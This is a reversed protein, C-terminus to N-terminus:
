LKLGAAVRKGMQADAKTLNQVMRRQIAKNAKGLSDVINDM